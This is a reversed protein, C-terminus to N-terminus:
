QKSGSNQYADRFADWDAMSKRAGPHSKDAMRKFVLSDFRHLNRLRSYVEAKVVFKDQSETPNTTSDQDPSASSKAM